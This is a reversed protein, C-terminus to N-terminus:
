QWNRLTRGPVSAPVGSLQQKWHLKIPMLPIVKAKAMLMYVGGLSADAQQWVM